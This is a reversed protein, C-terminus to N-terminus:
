WFLKEHDLDIGPCSEFCMTSRACVSPPEHEQSHELLSTDGKRNRHNVQDCPRPLVLRDRVFSAHPAHHGADTKARCSKLDIIRTGLQHPSGSVSAAFAGSHVQAFSPKGPFHVTIAAEAGVSMYEEHQPVADLAHGSISTVSRCGTAPSRYARHLCASLRQVIRSVEPHNRAFAAKFPGLAVAICDGQPSKPVM